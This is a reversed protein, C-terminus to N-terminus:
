RKSLLCAVAAVGLIGGILLVKKPIEGMTGVGLEFPNLALVDRKPDIIVEPGATGPLEVFKQSPLPPIPNVAKRSVDVSGLHSLARGASERDHNFGKLDGTNPNFFSGDPLQRWGM